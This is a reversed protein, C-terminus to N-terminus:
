GPFVTGGRLEPDGSGNPSLKDFGKRIVNTSAGKSLGPRVAAPPRRDATPARRDATPPRRGATPPRRDAAPGEVLEPRVPDPAVRFDDCPEPAGAPLAAHQMPRGLFRGRPAAELAVAPLAARRM